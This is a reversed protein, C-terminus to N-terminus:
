YNKMPGHKQIMYLGFHEKIHKLLFIIVWKATSGFWHVTDLMQNWAEPLVQAQELNLFKKYLFSKQNKKIQKKVFIKYISNLILVKTYTLELYNSQIQHNLSKEM